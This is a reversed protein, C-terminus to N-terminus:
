RLMICLLAFSFSVHFGVIPRSTTFYGVSATLSGNTYHVELIKCMMLAYLLLGVRRESQHGVLPTLDCVVVHRRSWSHGIGSVRTQIAAVAERM